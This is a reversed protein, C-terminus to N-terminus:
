GYLEHLRRMGKLWRDYDGTKRQMYELVEAHPLCLFREEALTEIVTNALEEPEMMGDVGAVGGNELGATMATRVAQPCLVSVKIGRNGYTISLWEAFGIAAHKTVSYTSSGIQSLLGAASSTNLLYGGGREIMGPVVARAAYVHSMTNVEWVRQWEENSNELDGYIAIGANSCFLDIPGAEAETRKVLNKIDDELGVNTAIAIGGVEKAVEGIGDENLDAVVIKAAGEAAFRQALARGIGSAGGTVVVVKDRVHM